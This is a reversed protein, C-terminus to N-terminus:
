LLRRALAGHLPQREPEHPPGGACGPAPSFGYTLTAPASPAEGALHPGKPDDVCIM